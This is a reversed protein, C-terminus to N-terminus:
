WRLFSVKDEQHHEGRKSVTSRCGQGVQRHGGDRDHDEERHELDVTDCGESNANGRRSVVLM